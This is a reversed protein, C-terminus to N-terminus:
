VNLSYHALFSPTKGMFEFNVCFAKFFRGLVHRERERKVACNRNMKDCWASLKSKVSMSVIMLDWRLLLLLLPGPNYWYYVFLMSSQKSNEFIYLRNKFFYPVLIFLIKQNRTELSSFSQQSSNCRNKKWVSLFVAVM